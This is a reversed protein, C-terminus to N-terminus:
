PLKHVATKETPDYWELHHHGNTFNVDEKHSIAAWQFPAATFSLTLV